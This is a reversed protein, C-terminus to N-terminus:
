RALSAFAAAVELNDIDAPAVLAERARGIADRATALAAERFAPNTSAIVELSNLLHLVVEITGAGDRAIPRFADELLDQPKFPTVSIRSNVTEADADEPPMNALLRALTGLVDIATGPDNVAPSLARDAIQALVVLGFRPDSEFSRQDGVVFASALDSAVEKDLTGEVRMLPRLGSVYAGPRATVAIQLAHKEALEQLQAADFHQVYGLKDAFVPQGAPHSVARRCDFLPHEKLTRFAEATAAEVRDVTHRVRGINSIQAIWRILAAIVIAVIALTVSFLLMRGPSSYIGASLGLIALISFLFAGIFVSISTQAARDGIILPVARPSTAASAASLAAVLTSLAFVAVTLLSTALIQLVTQIADRSISLPLEDPAWRAVYFALVITILAVASFAAPLFWMKNLLQRLLFSLKTM